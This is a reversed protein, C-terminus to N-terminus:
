KIGLEFAFKASIIENNKYAIDLVNDISKLNSLGMIGDAQSHETDTQSDVLLLKLRSSVGQFLVTDFVYYGKVEGRGYRIYDRLPLPTVTTSATSDFKRVDDPCNKCNKTPVWLLHSGTDLIVDFKQPPTGLEMKAYYQYQTVEPKCQLLQHSGGQQLCDDAIEQGWSDGGVALGQTFWLM